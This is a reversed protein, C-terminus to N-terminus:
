GQKQEWYDQTVLEVPVSRYGPVKGEALAATITFPVIKKPNHQAQNMIADTLRQVGNQRPWQEFLYSVLDAPVESGRLGGFDCGAALYVLAVEPEKYEAIGTSSTLAVADWALQQRREDIGEGILFHRTANASDVEHRHDSHYGETVGLDHLLSAVVVVEKDYRLRDREGFFSALIATRISHNYLYGPYLQEIKERAHKILQSDPIDIGFAHLDKLQQEM